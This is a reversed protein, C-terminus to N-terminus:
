KGGWEGKTGKEGGGFRNHARASTSFFLIFFSFFDSGSKRGRRDGRRDRAACPSLVVIITIVDVKHVVPDRAIPGTLESVRQRFRVVIITESPGCGPATRIARSDRPPRSPNEASQFAFHRRWRRM